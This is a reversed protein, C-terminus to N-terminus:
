ASEEAAGLDPAAPDAIGPRRARFWLTAGAPLERSEASIRLTRGGTEVEYSTYSGLFVADRLVCPAGPAPDPFLDEPRYRGTPAGLGSPLDVVPGLLEARPGALSDRYIERPGGEAEVRGDVLLSIRDSVAFAEERDHTVCVMTIGFARRTDRLFEATERKLARDLNAFPEDLLVAGPRVALARAIAARQRQGGSLRSPYEDAKDSLRFASLLEAVRREREARSVRATRLGFGVNESVTMHPFLLYDQFVLVVPGPPESRGDFRLVGADASELGALIRLLTSKGSGSPGLIAHFSGSAVDLSTERLAETRGYRRVIGDAEIRM